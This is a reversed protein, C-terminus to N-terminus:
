RALLVLFLADRGPFRLRAFGFAVLSGLGLRRRHLVRHHDPHQPLLPRLPDDALGQPYNGWAVPNPIWQPPFVFILGTPKLSSSLM